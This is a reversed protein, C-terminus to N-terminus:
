DEQTLGFVFLRWDGDRGMIATRFEAQKAAEDEDAPIGLMPAVSKWMMKDRICELLRCWAMRARRLEFQIEARQYVAETVGPRLHGMVLSRIEEPVGLMALHSTVAARADHWVWDRVGSGEDIKKKLRSFDQFPNKGDTTLVYDGERKCTQLVEIVEDPLPILHMKNKKTRARPLTLVRPTDRNDFESWKLSAVENRRLGLMFLLLIFQQKPYALKEAAEFIRALEEARLLRDRSTESGPAMGRVIPSQDIIGVAASWNFLKRLHAFARRVRADSMPRTKRARTVTKASMAALWGAIDARGIDRMPRRGFYPIAHLKLAAETDKWSRQRPKAYETIFRGVVAEFRDDLKAKEARRRQHKEVTPDKGEKAEARAKWAWTRADELNLGVVDLGSTARVPKGHLRFRVCFSMAGTSRLRVQLPTEADRIYREGSAPCEKDLADVRAKTLNIRHGRPVANPVRKSDGSQAM